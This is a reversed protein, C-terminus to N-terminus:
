GSFTPFAFLTLGAINQFHKTNFTALELGHQLASAAVIADLLDIQARARIEGAKESVGSELPVLQLGSFVTELENRAEANEWVSKGAYLETHTIISIYMFYKEEALRYLLSKEKDKRRFFDIIVSTDVLIKKM